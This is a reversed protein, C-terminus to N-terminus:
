ICFVFYLVSERGQPPSATKEVATETPVLVEPSAM